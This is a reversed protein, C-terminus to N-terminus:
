RQGWVRRHGLCIRGKNLPEPILIHHVTELDFYLKGALCAVGCFDGIEEDTTASITIAGLHQPNLKVFPEAAVISAALLSKKDFSGRCFVQKDIKLGGLPDVSRENGAEVVDTHPNFHSYEGNDGTDHRAIM